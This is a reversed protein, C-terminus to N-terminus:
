AVACVDLVMLELFCAVTLVGNSVMKMIINMPFEM